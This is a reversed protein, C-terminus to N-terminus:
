HRHLIHKLFCIVLCFQCCTICGKTYVCEQTHFWPLACIHFSYRIGGHLAGGGNNHRNGGPPPPDRLAPEGGGGKLPSIAGVFCVVEFNYSRM